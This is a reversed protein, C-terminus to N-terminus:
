PNKKGRVVSGIARYVLRATLFECAHLGPRPMLEVFDMAVIRRARAAADIIRLVPEWLLGGPEPTGTAPMLSSDFGDVDFSLYIPDPLCSAIASPLADGFSALDHAYFTLCEGAPPKEVAGPRARRTIAAEESSLSRVGVQVIAVKEELVRRMVCGHGYNTGEYEDRLDGHADFHLVGVTPFARKVARLPGLTISHEGGLIVPVQGRGLIEGVKKELAPALAEPPGPFPFPPLTTIGAEYPEDEGREDYLEVQASATLIAAPGQATGQAYTTTKEYPVPLVAFRARAPDCAPPELGLFAGEPPFSSM